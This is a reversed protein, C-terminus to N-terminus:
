YMDSYFTLIEPKKKKKASSMKPGHPRATHTTNFKLAVQGSHANQARIPFETIM